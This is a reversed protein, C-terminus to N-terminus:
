GEARWACQADAAGLVDQTDADHRVARARMIRGASKDRLVCSLSIFPYNINPIDARLYQYSIHLM